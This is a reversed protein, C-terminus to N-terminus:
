ATDAAELLVSPPNLGADAVLIRSRLIPQAHRHVFLDIAEQDNGTTLQAAVLSTTERLFNFSGLVAESRPVM